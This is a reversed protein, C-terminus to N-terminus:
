ELSEGCPCSPHASQAEKTPTPSRKGILHHRQGHIEVIHSGDNRCDPELVQEDPPLCLDLVCDQIQIGFESVYGNLSVHRFVSSPKENSPYREQWKWAQETESKAHRWGHALHDHPDDQDSPLTASSDTDLFSPDKLFLHVHLLPSPLSIPRSSHPTVCSLKSPQKQHIRLGGHDRCSPMPHAAVGHRLFLTTNLTGGYFDDDHLTRAQNRLLRANHPITRRDWAENWLLPHLLVDHLLTNCRPASRRM